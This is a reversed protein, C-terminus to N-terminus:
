QSRRIDWDSSRVDKEVDHNGAVSYIQERKHHKLVGLQRVVEKGQEDDLMCYAYCDCGYRSLRVQAEV